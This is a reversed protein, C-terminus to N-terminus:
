IAHPECEDHITFGIFFALVCFEHDLHDSIETEGDGVM